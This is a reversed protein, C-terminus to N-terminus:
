MGAQNQMYQVMHMTDPMMRPSLTNMIWLSGSVLIIVIFITAAFIAQKEKSGEEKKNLHLFFVLQAVFQMFALAVITGIIWSIPLVTIFAPTHHTAVAFAILTFLLSLVFGILYNKM